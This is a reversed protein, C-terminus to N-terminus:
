SNLSMRVKKGLLAYGVDNMHLPDDSYFANKNEGYADLMSSHIDIFSWNENNNIYKELWFNVEEIEKRLHRRFPCPKISIVLVEFNPLLETVTILFNKYDRIVESVSLGSGLDNDGAYIIIKGNTIRTTLLRESFAQCAAITAGGFALNSLHPIGLDTKAEKWLRLTSSGYLIFDQEKTQSIHNQIEVERVDTGFEEEVPSLLGVNTSLTQRKAFPMINLEAALEIAEEVYSRFTKRYEKLFSEIETESSTDAVMDSLRFGPKIVAAYNTGSVPFDFNALAIPVIVPSPKLNAALKFAGLKLPGPSTTTLNDPTESTGEPAIVLPRGEDFAKQAEIFLSEKRAEKEVQTEDLRDSEPTHVVINDLRSYYGNRWFETNRSARVIRQGGDGYKPYLIKSSVFHSDISFAHGNALVNEPCSALHNYIFITKSEKPLNEMGKIVYPVQDFARAFDLQILERLSSANTGKKASAVRTYIKNLQEFFRHEREVPKLADLALSGVTKEAENGKLAAEYICDLGFKRTFRNDIMHVACHLPSQVPIKSGNFSILTKLFESGPNDTFNFHRNASQQFRGIQWIQRQFLFSALLPEVEMMSRLNKKSFKLIATDRNSKISYPAILNSHGNAWSLAVGPTVITRTKQVIKNDLKFSFNAELSGTFLIILDECLEGENMIIENAPFLLLESFKLLDPLREKDLQAFFASNTLRKVIDRDSNFLVGNFKKQIPKPKAPKFHRTAWLLETSRSLVFSMLSAGSIQDIILLDYLVSLPFILIQSEEIITLDSMYRGPSNLGSVGLPVIHETVTAFTINQDDAKRTFEVKGKVLFYLNEAIQNQHFLTEGIKYVEVRCNNNIIDKAKESLTLQLDFYNQSEIFFSAPSEDLNQLIQLM